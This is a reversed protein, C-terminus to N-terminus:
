PHFRVAPRPQRHRHAPHLRCPATRRLRDRQRRSSFLPRCMLARGDACSKRPPKAASASPSVSLSSPSCEFWALDEQTLPERRSTLNKLARRRLEVQSPTTTPAPDRPLLPASVHRCSSLM